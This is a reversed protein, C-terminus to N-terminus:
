HNKDSLAKKSKDSSFALFRGTVSIPIKFFSNPDESLKKQFKLCHKPLMEHIWLFHQNTADLQCEYTRGGPM